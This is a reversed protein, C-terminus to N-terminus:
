MKPALVLGRSSCLPDPSSERALRRLGASTGERHGSWLRWLCCACGGAEDNEPHNSGNDNTANDWIRTNQVFYRILRTHNKNMSAQTVGGRKNKQIVKRSVLSKTGLMIESDNIAAWAISSILCFVVDWSMSSTVSPHQFMTRALWQSPWPDLFM